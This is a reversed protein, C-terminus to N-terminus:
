YLRFSAELGRVGLCGNLFQWGLVALALGKAKVKAAVVMFEPFSISIFYRKFVSIRAVSHVIGSYACILM